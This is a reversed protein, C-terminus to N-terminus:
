RYAKGGVFLLCSKRVAVFKKRWHPGEAHVSKPSMQSGLEGDSNRSLGPAPWGAACNARHPLHDNPLGHQPSTWWPNPGHLFCPRGCVSVHIMFRV